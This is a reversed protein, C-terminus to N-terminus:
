RNDRACRIVEDYLGHEFVTLGGSGGVAVQVLEQGSNDCLVWSHAMPQYLTLFNQLSRDYRRRVVEEPVPHGGRRVREAVRAVALDPSRLWVYDEYIRYGQERLSKLFPAFSRSALTSEFAFSQGSRALERLRHLMVRGAQFAAAEPAFGSLGQAIVDANVFHRLDLGEPLLRRASTSKGAGNPGGLVVVIPSRSELAM